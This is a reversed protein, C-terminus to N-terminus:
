TNTKIIESAKYRIFKPLFSSCVGVGLVCLVGGIMIANHMGILASMFGAQTNGLLPGSMYSIMEIGALRGRLKDPITQNWLTTRFIGSFMDSAGALMLFFLSCWINQTFGVAAIALGWGSASLAIALGHRRIKHTWGSLLTAFLAGISPAAYFLGVLKPKGYAEAMAPFLAVPMSFVLAIFDVLYSGMLEQRSLAYRLGEKVSKFNVKNETSHEWSSHRIQMLAIISIIFTVTDILYTVVWGFMAICLGGVAPGAVTGIVSKFSNLPSIAHIDEKAVLRPTLAELAPRHFGNFASMLGALCYIVWVKPQALSANIALLIVIIAIAIESYILLKKRDLVDAVAGGLFATLLLPVLEITGVIGVAFTSHTIEYIQFPLAVYTIMSGFMSVMQGIFLMRYDPYKKLPSIDIFM